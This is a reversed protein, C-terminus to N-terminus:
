RGELIIKDFIVRETNDSFGSRFRVFGSSSIGTVGWVHTAEMWRDNQFDKGMTYTRVTQWPTTEAARWELHFSEGPDALITYYSFTIRLEQYLALALKKTRLTSDVGSDDRVELSYIGDAALNKRLKTKRAQVFNGYKGSEFSEVFITTWAVDEEEDDDVVKGCLGKVNSNWEDCTVSRIWDIASSVRAYVGPFGEMGCGVGWSVVGTLTHHNNTVDRIVIPGGSDGQCSDKGTEGACFMVSPEVLDGYIDTCGSDSLAPIVVHNLLVTPAGGEFAAGVGLTTLAQGPWPVSDDMNLSLITPTTGGGSTTTLITSIDVATKLKYLAFDYGMMEESFGSHNRQDIIESSYVGGVKIIEGVFPGCHAAGLVIDPGILTAGCM